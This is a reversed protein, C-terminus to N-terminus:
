QELHRGAMGACVHHARFHQLPGALESVSRGAGDRLLRGAIGAGWVAGVACAPLIEPFAEAGALPPNQLCYGPSDGLPCIFSCYVRGFLLTLLLLVGLIVASVAAGSLTGLVSPVFQWRALSFSDEMGEGGGTMNPVNWAPIHHLFAYAIGIFFIVAVTVRLWKLPSVLFAKIVSM